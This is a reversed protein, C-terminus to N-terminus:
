GDELLALKKAQFKYCKRDLKQLVTVLNSQKSSPLFSHQLKCSYRGLSIFIKM